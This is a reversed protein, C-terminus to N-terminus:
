QNDVPRLEVRRNQARGDRTQNTAIPQDPGYGRAVMRDPSVGRQALYARVALARALSLETNRQRSGTGDTHGAIEIRVEPNANLSAAVEDLTIYSTETLNSRNSEFTVGTLVLARRRGEEVRFLIPCGVADVQEGPRTMPCRDRSDNVGDM